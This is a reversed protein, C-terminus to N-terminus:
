GLFADQEIRFEVIRTILDQPLPKDHPFQIAGKSWTYGGLEQKFASIGAGTPYFGIHKKYGAYYVLFTRLKFAPMQYGIAEIAQPAAARIIARMAQLRAQVAPEFGAIYADPSAPKPM